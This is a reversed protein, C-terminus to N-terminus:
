RGPETLGAVARFRPLHAMSVFCPEVEGNPRLCWNRTAVADIAHASELLDLARNHDGEEALLGALYHRAAFAGSRGAVQAEWIARAREKDGADNALWGVFAALDDAEEGEEADQLAREVLKVAGDLDGNRALFRAYDELVAPDRDFGFYLRKFMEGAAENRGMEEYLHALNLRPIPDDPDLEAARMYSKLARHHRKELQYVRGLNTMHSACSPHKRAARKLLFRAEDLRGLETLAIGELTELCEVCEPWQEETDASRPIRALEVVEAFRGEEYARHALYERAPMDGMESLESLMRHGREGDLGEELLLVALEYVSGASSQGASQELAEIAERLRGLHRLTIGKWHILDLNPGFHRLAQEFVELAQEFQGEDFHDLGQQLAREVGRPTVSVIDDM